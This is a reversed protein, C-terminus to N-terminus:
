ELFCMANDGLCQHHVNQVYFHFANKHVLVLKICCRLLFCLSKIKLVVISHLHHKLFYYKVIRLKIVKYREYFLSFYNYPILINLCVSRCSTHLCADCQTFHFQTLNPPPDVSGTFVSFDDQLM